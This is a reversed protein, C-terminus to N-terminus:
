IHILSLGLARASHAATGLGCRYMFSLQFQAEAHGREAAHRHLAFALALAEPDDPEFVQLAALYLRDPPTQAANALLAQAAADTGRLAKLAKAGDADGARAAREFWQRAEDDNRPVGRGEGHMRGLSTFAAVVGKRAAEMYLNLAQSLDPAVGLGKEYKDALNCQAPGHGQQAARRYWAVAQPLDQPTGEGQECQWGLSFQADAVGQEAAQRFWHVAQRLDKPVGDGVRLALGLSYQAPAYGQEAARRFHGAAKQLDHPVTRGDRYLMGLQQLALSHGQAAAPELLTAARAEDAQVAMGQLYLNALAFQAHAAGQDSQARLWQLGLRAAAAVDATLRAVRVLSRSQHVPVTRQGPEGDALVVMVPTGANLLFGEVRAPFMGNDFLVADGPQVPEGDAYCVLQSAVPANM